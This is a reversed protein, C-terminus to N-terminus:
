INRIRKAIEGIVTSKLDDYIPQVKKFFNMKEPKFIKIGSKEVEEYVMLTMQDWLKRQYVVLNRKNSKL